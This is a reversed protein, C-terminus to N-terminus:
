KIMNIIPSKGNYESGYRETTDRRAWFLLYFICYSKSLAQMGPYAHEIWSSYYRVIGEHKLSSHAEAEVVQKKVYRWVNINFNKLKLFFKSQTRGLERWLM